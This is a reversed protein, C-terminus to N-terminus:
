SAAPQESPPGPETVARRYSCSGGRGANPCAIFAGDRKSFKELLYPSGCEPCREILPKDWAVFKCEPYRNCGYFIKGRRSRRETIQGTCGEAPCHIGISLPRSSKCDPYRSCALFRGFRGRKIVMPAQCKDCVEDTTTVEQVPIVHGEDDRRFDMTNKCEPYGSCALFQGRKGWKIVMPKGCKECTLETKIEERKVDRMQTEARAVEEKFPGYFDGIVQVWNANGEEIQDLREEMGATFHADVVGPFAQVLLETVLTGLETPYFRGEEKKVYERDQITSLIAAYTSPRGIGQEELEKVLSAETFRPPPQTFHQEPLLKGLTLTEGPEVPPLERSEAAEGDDVKEKDKEESEDAKEGYVALYGAFKLITGTARFLARGAAIEITTQDYVGPAMQCAVFRRWILEYLRHMDPELFPQVREPTWELSTPRIAEHADQAAKKSKFVNPEAPLYQAGYQAEILARVATVADASLRTSDTRMYTILGVSGEEGLEVGEYLRQALAMTKKATFHLRNAAEQQLKSTIFPPAPNRRRERRDVKAVRWTAQQLEAGLASATAADHIEAKAGDLKALRAKFPPPLRATLDADITWYEVAVFARIEGERDIVLRVAVSQVRGASLGRRVKKWLVPSIQYGVLRDLVRRAQQADFKARDLALPHQIAELVAKKTIENFLVRQVDMGDMEEAIHWAIAEGERDPDTALYTRACQRAAEKIGELVKLKAPLVEYRPAFDHDVDVGLKSKPLDKVHGVSAKVTYERGLYKKITKAKAPSEVVVLFGSGPARKPSRVAGTAAKAQAAKKAAAPKRRAKAKAAAPQEAATEIPAGDVPRAGATKKGAAGNAKAM